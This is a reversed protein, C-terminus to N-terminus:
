QLSDPRTVVTYTCHVSCNHRVSMFEPWVTDSVITLTCYVYLKFYVRKKQETHGTRVWTRVTNAQAFIGLRPIM